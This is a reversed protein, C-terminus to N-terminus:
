GSTQGGFLGTSYLCGDLVVVSIGLTRDGLYFLAVAHGDIDWEGSTTLLENGIGRETKTYTGDKDLVLYEDPHDEKTYRGAVDLVAPAKKTEKIWVVRLAGFGELVIADSAVTGRFTTGDPFLLSIRGNQLKWQGTTGVNLGLIEIYCTKDTNIELCDDSNLPNVYEGIATYEDLASASFVSLSIGVLVTIYLIFYRLSLNM